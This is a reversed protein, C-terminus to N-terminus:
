GVTMYESWCLKSLQYFKVSVSLIDLNNLNLHNIMLNTTLTVLLKLSRWMLPIMVLQFNLMGKVLKVVFLQPGTQEGPLWKNGQLYNRVYVSDGVKFEQAKAKVDHQSKQKRQAAEVKEATNPKM